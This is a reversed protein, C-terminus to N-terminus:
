AMRKWAHEVHIEMKMIHVQGDSATAKFNAVYVKGGELNQLQKYTAVNDSVSNSGTALTSTKDEAGDYIVFDVSSVTGIGSWPGTYIPQEGAVLYHPDIWIVNPQQNLSM